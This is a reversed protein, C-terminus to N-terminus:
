LTESLNLAAADAFIFKRFKANYVFPRRALRSLNLIQSRTKLRLGFRKISLNLYLRV